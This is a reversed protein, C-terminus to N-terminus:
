HAAAFQQLAATRVRQGPALRHLGAAVVSDGPNVAGSVFLRNGRAHHIVVSRAELLAEGDGQDVTAYVVWTGRAGATVATDPLWAGSTEVPVGLSVYALEGPAWDEDIGIRVVRSRTAQDVVPGLGLVTGDASAEGARVAVTDGRGLAAALADPVGIHVERVAAQVLGFVPAGPAVVAGSDIAREAVVAAFPAKLVSKELRLANAMLAADVRQLSAQLVRTRGILDDLERESALSEAQLREIRALNRQATELEAQLEAQRAQLEDRESQLLRADLRALAQGATVADGIDVYLEAVEGAFEFGLRSSQGAQVEGAFERDVRYGPQFEVPVTTVRHLEPPASDARSDWNCGATITVAATAILALGAYKLM